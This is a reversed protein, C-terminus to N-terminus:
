AMVCRGNDGACLPGAGQSALENERNEAEALQRRLEKIETSQKQITEADTNAKIESAEIQMAQQQVVEDAQKKGEKARKLKGKLELSRKAVSNQIELMKTAQEDGAQSVEQLQDRAEEIQNLVSKIEEKIPSAAPPLPNDM